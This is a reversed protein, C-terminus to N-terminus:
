AMCTMIGREPHINPNEMSEWAETNNWPKLFRACADLSPKRQRSLSQKACLEIRGLHNRSLQMWYLATLWCSGFYGAYDSGSCLLCGAKADFLHSLSLRLRESLSSSYSWSIRITWRYQNTKTEEDAYNSRPTNIKGFINETVQRKMLCLQHNWGSGNLQKFKWRSLFPSFSYLQYFLLSHGAPSQLDQEVVVVEAELSCIM